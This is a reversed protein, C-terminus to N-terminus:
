DVCRLRSRRGRRTQGTEPLSGPQQRRKWGMGPQLRDTQGEETRLCHAPGLSRQPSNAAMQHNSPLLQGSQGAGDAPGDLGTSRRLSATWPSGEALMNDHLWDAPHSAPLRGRSSEVRCGGGSRASVAGVIPLVGMAMSLMRQNSGAEEGGHRQVVPCFFKVVTGYDEM